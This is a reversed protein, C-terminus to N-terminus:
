TERRLHPAVGAVLGLVLGGLHAANAIPGMIGLMCVVLWIMIISVTQSSMHFGTGPEFESKMWAYGFLGYVVGSLGGFPPIADVGHQTASWAYEALNSGIALLLILLLTHWRGRALELMGGLQYFMILNFVLHPLSFHLFIPSVLRWIEGQKVADLGTSKLNGVRAPLDGESPLTTVELVYRSILLPQIAARNAGLRTYLGVGIAVALVAFTVPCRRWNPGSWTSRVDITKRRHEAELQAERKRIQAAQDSAARYRAHDPARHFADLEERAQAIEDEREVWIGYGSGDEVIRNRIRLSTLHDSFLRASDKEGLTGIQRM